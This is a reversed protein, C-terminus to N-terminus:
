SWHEAVHPSPVCVLIHLLGLGALSPFSQSPAVEFGHLESGHRVVSAVVSTVVSAVISAVVSAKVIGVVSVKVIVGIGVGIVGLGTVTIV